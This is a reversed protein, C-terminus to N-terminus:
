QQLIMQIAAWQPNLLWPLACFFCILGGGILAAVAVGLGIRATNSPDDLYNYRDTESLRDYHAVVAPIFRKWGYLAAAFCIAAGALDMVGFMIAQRIYLGYVFTAPGHLLHVFYRVDSAIKTPSM